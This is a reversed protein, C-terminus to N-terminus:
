STTWGTRTTPRDRWGPPDDLNNQPLFSLLRRIIYLCEEENEAAFHAVGSITNHTTAGGLRELTVEEHTVAKIVAPGTIFM